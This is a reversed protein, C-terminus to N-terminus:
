FPGFFTTNEDSQPLQNREKGVKNKLPIQQNGDASEWGYETVFSCSSKKNGQSSSFVHHWHTYGINHASNREWKEDGETIKIKKIVM